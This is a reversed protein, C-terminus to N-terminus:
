RSGGGLSRRAHNRQVHSWPVFARFIVLYEPEVGSVPLDLRCLPGDIRDRGTSRVMSGTRAAPGALEFDGKRAGSPVALRIPCGLCFAM